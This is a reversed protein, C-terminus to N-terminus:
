GLLAVASRSNEAHKFLHSDLCILIIIDQGDLTASVLTEAEAPIIVFRIKGGKPILISSGNNAFTMQMDDSYGSIFHKGIFTMPVADSEVGYALAFSEALEINEPHDYVEYDHIIIKNKYVDDKLYKLYVEEAACHPCGDGHFFYM